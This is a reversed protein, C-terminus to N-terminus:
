TINIMSGATNKSVPAPRLKPISAKRAGRRSRAASCPLPTARRMRQSTQVFVHKRSSEESRVRRPDARSLVNSLSQGRNEFAETAGRASRNSWVVGRSLREFSSPQPRIRVAPHDDYRRRDRHPLVHRRHEVHLQVRGLGAGWGVASRSRLAHVSGRELQSPQHGHHDVTLNAPLTGMHAAYTKVALAHMQLDSKAKEIRVM